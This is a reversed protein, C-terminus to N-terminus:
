DVSDHLDCEEDVEFPDVGQRLGPHHRPCQDGVEERDETIIKNFM